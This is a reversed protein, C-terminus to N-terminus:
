GEEREGAALGRADQGDVEPMAHHTDGPPPRQGGHWRCYAGTKANCGRGCLALVLWVGSPPCQAHSPHRHPCRPCPSWTASVDVKGFQRPSM